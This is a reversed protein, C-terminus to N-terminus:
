MRRLFSGHHASMSMRPSPRRPTGYPGANAQQGGKRSAISQSQNRSAQYVYAPPLGRQVGRMGENKWTKRLVDVASTYVRKGGGGKALEGQLQLRTKAVEASCYIPQM